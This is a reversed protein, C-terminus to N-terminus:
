LDGWASDEDLAAELTPPPAPRHQQKQRYMAQDADALLREPAEDTGSFLRRGISAQGQWLQGALVAPQCLQQAIKAELAVLGALAQDPAAALSECLVVFEDGGLRAVTDTERVAERLRQAVLVLWQDGAEHGLQDNLQKFGDLDLFLVAGHTGQRKSTQQAHRLRDMLLRRNPLRTLPDLFALQRVEEALAKQATIDRAIRSRGVLQGRQDFLPSISMSVSIRQGDRRLRETEFHAVPEGRQVQALLGAMEDHRDPPLLRHLTQGLMEAASYGYLREAGSNWSTVVGEQTESVIADQSSEVIAALRRQVDDLAQRQVRLMASTAMGALALTALALTIIAADVNNWGNPFEDEPLGVLLLLPHGQVQRYTNIRARGDLATPAEYEGAQPNAALAERLGASVETSGVAAGMGERPWPRRYVLALSETRITAAGHEGLDITSFLADFRTVPLDVSVWGGFGGDAGPIARSLVLLWPQDAARRLPGSLQLGRAPEARARAFAQADDGQLPLPPNLLRAGAADVLLRWQGDADALRLNQLGPVTAALSRLPAAAAAAGDRQALERWQLASAQLLVDAKSLVDAVQSELLRALNQTGAVARERQRAREQWISVAALLVLLLAVALLSAAHPAWDARWPRPQPPIPTATTRDPPM